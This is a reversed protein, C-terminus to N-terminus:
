HTISLEIIKLRLSEIGRAVLPSETSAACIRASLCINELQFYNRNNSHIPATLTYTHSALKLTAAERM